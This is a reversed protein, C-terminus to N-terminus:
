DVRCRETDWQQNVGPSLRAQCARGNWRREWGQRTADGLSVLLLTVQQHWSVGERQVKSEMKRFKENRNVVVVGTANLPLVKPHAVKDAKRIKLSSAWSVPALHTAGVETNSM